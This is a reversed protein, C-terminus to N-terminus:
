DKAKTGSETLEMIMELKGAGLDAVMEMKVMGMKVDKSQWVKVEAEFEQGMAKAKVKYQEWTCDYEKTGIKIKEKGDKIKEAKAENGGPLATGKTPDYPKTLDIKQEQAPIENGGVNGTVKITAEKDDKASVTQTVTGELNVPPLKMTMKFTAYDGTKVNKYPNEAEKTAEKPPDKKEQAFSVFPLAALAFLAALLRVKM